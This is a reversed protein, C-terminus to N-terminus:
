LNFIAPPFFFAVPKVWASCSSRATLPFIIWPFYIWNPYNKHSLNEGLRGFDTNKTFKLEFKENQFFPFERFNKFFQGSLFDSNTIFNFFFYKLAKASRRRALSRKNEPNMSEVNNANWNPNLSSDM